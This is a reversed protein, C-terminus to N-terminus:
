DEEGFGTRTRHLRRRGRLRAIWAPLLPVVLARFAVLLVAAAFPRAILTTWDGSSVLLTRRLRPEM